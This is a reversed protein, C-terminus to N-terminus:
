SDRQWGGGLAKYLVILNKIIQADSQTLQNQLSLLTRESDLVTTFDVLGSTYQVRSMEVALEAAQYAAFLSERSQKEYAYSMLGNEVDELATLLAKRYAILKQEQIEWQLEINRIIAGATYVPWSITGGAGTSFSDADMLDGASFADLGISGSLSFSPYLRSTAVGIKASQAALEREARRLDPRRRLLDAPIGVAIEEPPIPVPQCEGLKADLTGPVGGVLVSLANLTQGIGSRLAPINARTQELNTRALEVDLATTLGAEHRWHTIEWTEEQSRLNAEAVGLRAQYSRLEVYNMAVEALLSVLVDRYSERTAALEADSAELSRRVGGFIDLEWSADLGLNFANVGSFDGAMDNRYTRRASGSANVSPYKDTNAIGRSIRAQRVTSLAAQLDLNEAVARTMLANLVPDGFSTWWNALTADEQPTGSENEINKQWTDPVPMDPRVYDPGVTTCAALACGLFVLLLRRLFGALRASSLHRGNQNM